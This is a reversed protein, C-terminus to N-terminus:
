GQLLHEAGDDNRPESVGSRSPPAKCVDDSRRRISATRRRAFLDPSQFNAAGDSKRVKSSSHEDASLSSNVFVEVNELWMKCESSGGNDM